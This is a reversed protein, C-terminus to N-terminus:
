HNKALFECAEDLAAVVRAKGLLALLDVLSAGSQGRTIVERLPKGFRGFGLSLSALLEDVSSKITPYDWVDISKLCDVVQAFVDADMAQLHKANEVSLGPLPKFAWATEEALRMLTDCRSQMLAVLGTTDIEAKAAEDVGLGQWFPALLPLLDEAKKQKLHQANVWLLKAEDFAAPSKQIGALDFAQILEDPTFLEQDGKSWGLRALYNMMAEPLIGQDRYALVNKAGHRKSLRKGDTGLISPMHGYAIPEYGLAAALHLQKPTNNIHDDGRLVHTIGMAHDDIVVTFNYTPSGDSRVLIFDDLEQNDYTIDGRILDHFQIHGTLPMAFRIVHPLSPDVKRHRCHGDYKPKKGQQMQTERLQALREQSCDCRYALGQELLSEVAQQYIAQRQSQYVPPDDYVLGMWSLADLIVDVSAQTSRERDTDEIRLVSKGQHHQAYLWSFLATRAGGLHLDGTPSPAFRTVVM